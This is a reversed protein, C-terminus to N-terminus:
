LGADRSGPRSGPAGDSRVDALVDDMRRALARFEPIDPLLALVDAVLGREVLARRASPFRMDRVWSLLILKFDNTWAMGRYDALRGAMVDDLMSATYREPDDRVGLVVVPDRPAGPALHGLMVPFIDLRDADRVVLTARAARPEMAPPPCRRNHVAVAARVLRRGAPDLADLFPERGLVRSGLAGHDASRSDDFTGWRKLQEFRGVDHYLAALLILDAEAPAPAPDLDSLIARAEDMVRLCHGRKLDVNADFEGDGCCFGAAYDALLARHAALDNAPPAAPPAATPTM